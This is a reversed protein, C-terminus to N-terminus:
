EGDTGDTVVHWFAALSVFFAFVVLITELTNM